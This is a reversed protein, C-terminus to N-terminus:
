KEKQSEHTHPNLLRSIVMGTSINYIIGIVIPFFLFVLVVALFGYGLSLEDFKRSLFADLADALELLISIALTSLIAGVMNGVIWMGSNILHVRLVLWQGFGVILGVIAGMLLSGTTTEVVNYNLDLYFVSAIGTMLGIASALVWLSPRAFHHKLAVSQFFGLFAGAIGGFIFIALDGLNILEITIANSITMLMLAILIGMTLGYSGFFVWRFLISRNALFQKTQM